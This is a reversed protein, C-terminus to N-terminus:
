EEQDDDREDAFPLPAQDLTDPFDKNFRLGNRGVRMEYARSRYTPVKSKCEIKVEARELIDEDAEPQPTILIELTVKRPSKEHPRAICDTTARQLHFKLLNNIKGKDLAELNGFDLELEEPKPV